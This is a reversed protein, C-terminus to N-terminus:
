KGLESLLRRVARGNRKAHPCVAVYRYQMPLEKDSPLILHGADLDDALLVKPALAIGFGKRAAAIALSTDSFTLTSAIQFNAEKDYLGFWYEWTPESAYAPGWRNAIFLHPPIVKLSADCGGHKQWFAPTCCPVAVDSYLEVHFFENYYRASYTLRLDIGSKIFDVPDSEVRVDLSLDLAQSIEELKPLFWLESLSPLVSVVIQGRNQRRELLRTTQALQELASSVNPYIAEGADTLFIRNGRRLFLQKGVHVELNKVQLSVAASSVGLERGAQVFGGCRAACEFSRLANLPPLTSM